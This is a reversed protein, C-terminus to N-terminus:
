ARRGPKGVPLPVGQAMYPNIPPQMGTQEYPLMGLPQPPMPQPQQPAVLGLAEAIARDNSHDIPMAQANRGYHRMAASLLGGYGAGGGGQAMIGGGIPTALGPM